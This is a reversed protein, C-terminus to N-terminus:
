LLGGTFFGAIIMVVGKLKVTFRVKEYVKGDTAGAVLKSENKV